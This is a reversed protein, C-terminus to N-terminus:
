PKYNRQSTTQKKSNHRDQYLRASSTSDVTAKERVTPTSTNSSMTASVGQSMTTRRRSEQLLSANTTFNERGDVSSNPSLGSPSTSSVTLGFHDQPEGQRGVAPTIQPTRELMMDRQSTPSTTSAGSSNGIVKRMVHSTAMESTQQNTTGAFSSTCSKGAMEQGGSAFQNSLVLMVRLIGILHVQITYDRARITADLIQLLPDILCACIERGKEPNSIPGLFSKLFEG